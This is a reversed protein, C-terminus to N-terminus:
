IRRTVERLWELEEGELYPSIENWVTEHYRNLKAKEPETLLEPLVADLDIPCYTIPEFTLFEGYETEMWKRCLLENETRIGFHGEVYFGPEDTTVM